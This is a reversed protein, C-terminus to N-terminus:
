ETSAPPPETCFYFTGKNTTRDACIRNIKEIDIDKIEPNNPLHITLGAYFAAKMYCKCAPEGVSVCVACETGRALVGGRGAVREVGDGTDSSNHIMIRRAGDKIMMDLMNTILIRCFGRGHYSEHVETGTFCFIEGDPDPPPDIQLGRYRRSFSENGDLSGATTVGVIRNDCILYVVYGKGTGLPVYETFTGTRIDHPVCEDWGDPLGYIPNEGSNGDIGHQVRTKFTDFARADIDDREDNKEREDNRIVRELDFKIIEYDVRQKKAPPDKM